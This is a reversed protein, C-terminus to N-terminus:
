CPEGAPSCSPMEVPSLAAIEQDVLAMATVLEDSLDPFPISMQNVATITMGLKVKVEYLEIFMLLKDEDDTHFVDDDKLDVEGEAIYILEVVVYRFSDCGCERMEPDDQFVWVALGRDTNEWRPAADNGYSVDEWSTDHLIFNPVTFEEHNFSRTFNSMTTEEEQKPEWYLQVGTGEMDVYQGTQWDLVRIIQAQENFHLQYLEDGDPELILVTMWDEPMIKQILHGWPCRYDVIFSGKDETWSGDNM